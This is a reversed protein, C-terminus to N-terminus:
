VFVLAAKARGDIWERCGNSPVPWILGTLV